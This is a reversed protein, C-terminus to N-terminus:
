LIVLVTKAAADVVRLAAVLPLMKPLQTQVLMKLHRLQNFTM